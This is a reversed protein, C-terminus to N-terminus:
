ILLHEGVTSLEMEIVLVLTLEVTLLSSGTFSFIVFMEGITDSDTDDVLKTDSDSRFLGGGTELTLNLAFGLLVVLLMVEREGVRAEM